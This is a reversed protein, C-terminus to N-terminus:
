GWGDGFTPLAYPNTNMAKVGLFFYSFQSFGYVSQSFPTELFLTQLRCLYRPPYFPLLQRGQRLSTHRNSSVRAFLLHWLFYRYRSQLFGAAQYAILLVCRPKGSQLPM